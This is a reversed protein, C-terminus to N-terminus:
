KIKKILWYIGAIVLIFILINFFWGLLIFGGNFGSMMGYGGFGGFLILVIVVILVILLTDKNNAM